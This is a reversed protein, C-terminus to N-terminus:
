FNSLSANFDLAFDQLPAHYDLLPRWRLRGVTILIYESPMPGCTTKEGVVM